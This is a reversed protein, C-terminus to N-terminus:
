VVSKRDAFHKMSIFLHFIDQNMMGMISFSKKDNPLEAYAQVDFSRLIVRDNDEGFIRDKDIDYSLIYYSMTIGHFNYAETILLDYLKRENNYLPNLHNFFGTNQVRKFGSFNTNDQAM